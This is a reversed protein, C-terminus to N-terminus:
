DIRMRQLLPNIADVFDDLVDPRTELGFSVFGSRVRADGRAGMAALVHSRGVKGSSCASGSSVAFGALTLAWHGPNGGQRWAGRLISTNPLRQASAGHFVVNPALDM